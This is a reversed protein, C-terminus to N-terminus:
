YGNARNEYQTKDAESLVNRPGAHTVGGRVQVEDDLFRTHKYVVRMGNSLLVERAELESHEACWEVSGPVPEGQQCIIDELKECDGQEWDELSGSVAQVRAFVGKVDGETVAAAAAAKRGLLLGKLWGTRPRTVKVVCNKSWDYYNIVAGVDAVTIDELIARCLNM